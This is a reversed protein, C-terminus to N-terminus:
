DTRSRVTPFGSTASTSKGNQSFDNPTVVGDTAAYIKQMLRGSPTRVGSVIRSMVPQTEGIEAAFGSITLGRQRLYDRIHM